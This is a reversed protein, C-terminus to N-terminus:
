ISGDEEERGFLNIIESVRSDHDIDAGSDSISSLEEMIERKEDAIWKKNEYKAMFSRTITKNNIYGETVVVAKQGCREILTNRYYGKGECGGGRHTVKYQKKLEDKLIEKVRKEAREEIENEDLPGKSYYTYNSDSWNGGSTTWTNTTTWTSGYNSPISVVGSNNTIAGEPNVELVGGSGTFDNMSAM